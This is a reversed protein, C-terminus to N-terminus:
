GVQDMKWSDFHNNDYKIEVQIGVTVFEIVNYVPGDERYDTLFSHATRAVYHGRIHFWGTIFCMVKGSGNEMYESHNNDYNTDVKVGVTEFERM